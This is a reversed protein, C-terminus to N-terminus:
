KFTRGKPTGRVVDDKIRRKLPNRYGGAPRQDGSRDELEGIIEVPDQGNPVEQHEAVAGSETAKIEELGTKIEAETKEQSGDCMSLGTRIQCGGPSRVGKESTKMMAM